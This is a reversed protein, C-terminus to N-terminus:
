LMIEELNEDIILKKEYEQTCGYCQSDILIINVHNYIAYKYLEKLESRSLYQKLNIFILLNNSQLINEMDIILFLNDILNDQLNINVKFLKLITNFNNDEEVILPIDIHNLIKKYLSIIKKYQKQLETKDEQQINNPLYKNLESIVKKSDFGLDFYNIYIKLKDGMNIEKENDDFFTIRESFGSKEIEYLDRIIRYFYKKNEVEIIAISNDIIKIINEIYDVKIKM